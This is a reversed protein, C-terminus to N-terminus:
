SKFTPPEGRMLKAVTADFNDASLRSDVYCPYRGAWYYEEVLKGNIKQKREPAM